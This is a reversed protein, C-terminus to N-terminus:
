GEGAENFVTMCANHHIGYRDIVAFFAEQGYAMSCGIVKRQDNEAQMSLLEAQACVAQAMIYAAAQSKTM